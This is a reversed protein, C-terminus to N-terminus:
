LSMLSMTVCAESKSTLLKMSSEMCLQLPSVSSNKTRWFQSLTDEKIVSLWALFMRSVQRQCEQSKLKYDSINCTDNSEKNKLLNSASTLASAVEEVSIRKTTNSELFDLGGYRQSRQDPVCGIKMQAGAFAFCIYSYNRCIRTKREQESLRLSYIEHRVRIMDTVISLFDDIVVNFCAERDTFEKSLEVRNWLKRCKLMERILDLSGWLAKGASERNSKDDCSGDLAIRHVISCFLRFTRASLNTRTTSSQCIQLLVDNYAFYVRTSYLVKGIVDDGDDLKTFKAMCSSLLSIAALLKRKIIQLQKEEEHGDELSTSTKGVAWVMWRSLSLHTCNESSGVHNKDPDNLSSSESSVDDCLKKVLSSVFKKYKKSSSDEKSSLMVFQDLRENWFEVEISFADNNNNNDDDDNRESPVVQIKDHIQVAPEDLRQRRTTSIETLLPGGGNVDREQEEKLDKEFNLLISSTSM